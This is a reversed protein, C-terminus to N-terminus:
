RSPVLKLWRVSVVEFHVIGLLAGAITGIIASGFFYGIAAGIAAGVFCITRRQSHVYLFVGVVFRTFINWAHRLGNITAQMASPAHVIIWKLERSAAFAVGIPNGYLILQWGTEVTERLDDERELRKKSGGLGFVDLVFLPIIVGTMTSVFMLCLVLTANSSSHGSYSILVLGIVVLFSSVVMTLGGFMVAFAKWCLWDPRWAITKHYSHAIGACFHRFDITVYAVIGGMLAGLSWFYSGYEFREAIELAVVTGIFAGLACACALSVWGRTM